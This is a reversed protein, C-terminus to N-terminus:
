SKDRHAHVTLVPCSATRVISEAVSGLLARRVGRRGHTGMVILDASVEDVAKLIMDRADGTRLMVEGIQAKDRRAAALKDLADQNSRVVSDIVSATLAVGLEPVGLAPVGIVNLLHVKADLKTALMVAYDLAREATDSFDVPVLINRPLNMVMSAERLAGVSLTRVLV